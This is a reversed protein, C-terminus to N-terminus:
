KIYDKIFKLVKDLEQVDLQDLENIIANRVSAQIDVTEKPIDVSRYISKKNRVIRTEDVATRIVWQSANTHEILTEKIEYRERIREYESTSIYVHDEDDESSDFYIGIGNNSYGLLYDSTVDFFSTLKLVHIERFPQKNNEIASLTANRIGVINEVDRLTLNAKTRLEKLRNM